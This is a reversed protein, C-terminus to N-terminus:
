VGHSAQRRSQRAELYRGLADQWTPMSIGARKLKENSLAAYRPRPAGLPMDEMRTPVLEAEVGLQRAAEQALDFWTTWGSNVCHYVGPPARRAVLSETAAAVDFVYSPSCIRDVFVRAPQRQEIAEVIRDISSGLKYVGGFLSEVRLVYHTPADAAFWEGILKSAAYTGKPKPLDEETYPRDTEGDFVFDTSYHVLAAGVDAAARALSRVAMANILLAAQPHDEAGDVKNYAACNLVVGANSESFRRRVDLGDTADLEAHTFALVRWRRQFVDVIAQGLQGGAGVVVVPRDVSAVSTVAAVSSVSAVSPYSPM